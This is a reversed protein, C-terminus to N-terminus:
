TIEKTTTHNQKFINLIDLQLYKTEKVAELSGLFSTIALGLFVGLFANSIEDSMGAFDYFGLFYFFVALVFFSITARTM